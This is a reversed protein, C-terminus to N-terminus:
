NGRSIGGVVDSNDISHETKKVSSKLSGFRWSASISFSRSRNWSREFGTFDGNVTEAEMEWYKNFPAKATLRVTLRDGKLFSRQLSAYYNFYGHQLYYVSAPSHGVKGYASLSLRLKLPLRQQLSLSYNDGWGHNRYCLNPNEYHEYGLNNNFALTTTDFPKWQVYQEVSFRRYRLINDYTSYRIDDKATVVSTIGSSYATYSPALQLTLRPMIYTYILSFRQTHSSSLQPNGQSVSSPSVMVAPNLYSIGPRNISTTYNLKLSQAATLQYQLTAQPVWDGLHKDFTANKGDPYSGRMYSYEYRLGARASFKTTRFIYDAYGALVRTTHQFEDSTDADIGYFTQSSNSNNHRDIYKAGIELQHGRGLPRLWDIQFTHETFRERERMLSGTYPFSVNYLDTYANEQDTHQRTLALMYSLTLREGDLHTKHQYDFRGNWSHHNYGPM